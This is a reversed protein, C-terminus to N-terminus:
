ESVDQSAGCTARDVANREVGRDLLTLRQSSEACSLGFVREHLGGFHPVLLTGIITEFVTQEVHQSRGAVRVRALVSLIAAIDHNTPVAVRELSLLSESVDEPVDVRLRQAVRRPKARGCLRSSLLTDL